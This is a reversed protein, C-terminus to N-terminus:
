TESRFDADRVCAPTATLDITKTVMSEATLITATPVTKVGGKVVNDSPGEHRCGYRKYELRRTQLTFDAFTWVSHCKDRQLLSLRQNLVNYTHVGHRLGVDDTRKVAAPM